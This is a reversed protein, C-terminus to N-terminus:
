PLILIICLAWVTVLFVIFFAVLVARDMKHIRRAMKDVSPMAPQAIGLLAARDALGEREMSAAAVGDGRGLADRALAELGVGAAVGVGVGLGYVM